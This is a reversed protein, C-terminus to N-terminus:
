RNEQPYLIEEDVLLVVKDRCEADKRLDISTRANRIREIPTLKKQEEGGRRRCLLPKMPLGCNKAVRRALEAAQDIGNQLATQDVYYGVIQTLERSVNLSNDGENYYIPIKETQEPPVALQGGVWDQPANLDIVAGDTRTYIVFRQLWVFWFFLVLAAVLTVALVTIGIRKLLRRTRYPINM